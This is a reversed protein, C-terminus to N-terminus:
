RAGMNNENRLTARVDDACQANGACGPVDDVIAARNPHVDRDLVARYAAYDANLGLDAPDALAAPVATLLLAAAFAAGRLLRRVQNDDTM